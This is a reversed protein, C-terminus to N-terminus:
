GDGWDGVGGFEWGEGIEGWRGRAGREVLRRTKACAWGIRGVEDM